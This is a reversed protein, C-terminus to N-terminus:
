PQRRAPGPARRRTLVETLDIVKTPEAKAGRCAARPGAEKDAVLERVKEQYTDHFEGPRWPGSMATILERAM